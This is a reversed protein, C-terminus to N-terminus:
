NGQQNADESQEYVPDYVADYYSYPGAISICCMLKLGEDAVVNRVEHLVGLNGSMVGLYGAMVGLNGPGLRNLTSIVASSCMMLGPTLM